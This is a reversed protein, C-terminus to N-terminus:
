RNLTDKQFLGKTFGKLSAGVGYAGIAFFPLSFLPQRDAIFCVGIMGMLASAGIGLFLKALLVFGRGDSKVSRSYQKQNYERKKREASFYDDVNPDINPASLQANSWYSDKIVDLEDRM